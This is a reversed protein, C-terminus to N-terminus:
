AQQDTSGENETNHTGYADDLGTQYGRLFNEEAVAVMFDPFEHALVDVIMAVTVNEEDFKTGVYQVLYDKLASDKKVVFGLTPNTHLDQETITKEESM